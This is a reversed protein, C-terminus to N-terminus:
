ISIADPWVTEKLENPHYVRVSDDAIAITTPKDRIIVTKLKIGLEKLRGVFLSREQDWDKLFLILMSLQAAHEKLLTTSAAFSIKKDGEVVSLLDLLRNFPNVGRGIQLHQHHEDSLFLDVIYDTAILIDATGACLSLRSEFCKHKEFTRLETDLFLGIRVFYEEVYEKVVLKGTRASSRWHIDRLRDGQRYERTSSFESSDGVKSSMLIGGPQYHRHLDTSLDEKKILRPHVVFKKIEGLRRRARIIGCPFDSCAVLPLLEYSGRRPIRMVLTVSTQEGPELWDIANNFQPHNMDPYLGHPLCQEFITLNRILRKGTNKVVVKYICRGGASPTPPLIRRASVHPRFFLSLFYATLILALIFSPLFYASIQTGISSISISVIIIIFIIQGWPTLRSQGYAMLQKVQKHDEAPLFFSWEVRPM